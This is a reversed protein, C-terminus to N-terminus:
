YNVILLTPLGASKIKYAGCVNFSIKKGSLKESQTLKIIWFAEANKKM